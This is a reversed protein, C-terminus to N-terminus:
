GRSRAPGIEELHMRDFCDRCMGHTLPLPGGSVLPLFQQVSLWVGDRTRVRKCWACVCALGGAGDLLPLLVRGEREAAEHLRTLAAEVEGRGELARTRLHELLRLDDPTPQAAEPTARVFRDVEVLRELLATAAIEYARRGVAEAGRVSRLLNGIMVAVEAVRAPGIRAAGEERLSALLEQAAPVATEPGSLALLCRVRQASMERALSTETTGAARIAEVHRSAELARGADLLVRVRLLELAGRTGRSGRGAASDIGAEIERLALEHDGEAHALVARHRRVMSVVSAVSEGTLQTALEELRAVIRRVAPFDRSWTHLHGLYDTLIAQGWVDGAREMLPLTRRALVLAEAEQHRDLCLWTLTAYAALEARSGSGRAEALIERLLREPEGTEGRLGVIQAVLSKAIWGLERPLCGVALARRYAGELEPLAQGNRALWAIREAGEPFAPDLEDALARYVNAALGAGARTPDTRQGDAWALADRCSAESLARVRATWTDDHAVGASLLELLPPDLTM